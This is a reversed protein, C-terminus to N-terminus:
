ALAMDTHSRCRRTELANEERRRSHLRRWRHHLSMCLSYSSPGPSDRRPERNAPRCLNYRYRTTCRCIRRTLPGNDKVLRHAYKSMSPNVLMLVRREAQEEPVLRAAKQLHPLVEDYNWIHASAVPNPSGPVMASMQTWLPELNQAPLDSLLGKLEGARSANSSEQVPGMM